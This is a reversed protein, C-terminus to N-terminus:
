AHGFARLFIANARIRTLHQDVPRRECRGVRRTVRGHLERARRDRRQARAGALEEDVDARTVPRVQLCHSRRNRCGDATRAPSARLMRPKRGTRCTSPQRNQRRSRDNRPGAASRDDPLADDLHGPFRDRDRQRNRRRLRVVRRLLEASVDLDVLGRVPETLRAIRVRLALHQSGVSPHATPACRNQHSASHSICTTRRSSAVFAM